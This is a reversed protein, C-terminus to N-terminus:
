RLEREGETEGAIVGRIFADMGVRQDCIIGFKVTVIFLYSFCCNVGGGWSVPPKM